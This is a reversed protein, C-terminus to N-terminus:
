RGKLRKRVFYGILGAGVISGSVIAFTKWNRKLWNM